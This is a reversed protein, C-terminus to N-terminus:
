VHARGIEDVTPTVKLGPGGCYDLDFHDKNVIILNVDRYIGGYFTFDAKQPYVRDNVGNDVHVTLVNSDSLLGTVDWRFTSYGGNHIGALTGNLEVRASANVGQFELYVRQDTGLEPKAFQKRYVCTGRWYDNGGDQGDISNWTHPLDVPIETGDPCTFHWGKNFCIINRMLYEERHLRGDM